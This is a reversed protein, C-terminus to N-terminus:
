NGQGGKLGKWGKTQFLRLMDKSLNGTRKALRGIKDVSVGKAIQSGKVAQVIKKWFSM